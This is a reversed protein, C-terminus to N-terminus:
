MGNLMKTAEEIMEEIIDDNTLNISLSQSMTLRNSAYFFSVATIVFMYTEFSVDHSFHGLEQGKRYLTRLYKYPKEKLGKVKETHKGGLMNEWVFIKWFEPHEQHFHVYKSLIIGSLFPIDADKLSMFTEDVEIILMYTRKWVEIFLDEKSGYYAYIREKNSKAKKAISDMRAGYFGLKAFEEVAAKFIREKTDKSRKQMM